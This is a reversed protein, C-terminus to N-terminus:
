GWFWWGLGLIPILPGWSTALSRASWRMFAHRDQPTPKGVPADIGLAERMECVSRSLLADNCSSGYLNRARRGSVFAQFLRRPHRPLMFGFIQCNLLVAVPSATCDSGLEWAGIEAEGILNTGYGTLVHHLDHFPVDRKRDETSPFAFVPVSGVKIVVWGDSYGGDPPLGNEEFYATRGERLTLTADVAM